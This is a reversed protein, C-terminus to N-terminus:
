DCFYILDFQNSLGYIKIKFKTNKKNEGIIMKRMTGSITMLILLNM